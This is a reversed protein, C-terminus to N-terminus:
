EGGKLLYKNSIAKFQVIRDNEIYELSKYVNGERVKHFLSKGDARELIKELTDCEEFIKVREKIIPVHKLKSGSISKVKESIESFLDMREASKVFRSKSIDWINFMFLDLEELKERNGQIGPGMLEFQFAYNKELEAIVQDLGKDHILKWAPVTPLQKFEVNRGCVGTYGDQHFLTISRGDLKMSEEFEVDRYKDFFDLLVQIRTQDSKEVIGPFHGLVEHGEPETEWKIVHLKETLDIGVEIDGIEPFLSLPLALGQSVQGKMKVTRLRFGSDGTYMTRFSSRRLFEYRDEEPLFSDIEYYVCLDGSVFEGKKAVCEWGIDEFSVKEILDAGKIPSVEKIKQITVLKRQM